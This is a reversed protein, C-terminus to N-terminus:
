EKFILSLVKRWIVLQLSIGEMKLTLFRYVPVTSVSDETFAGFAIGEFEFGELTM